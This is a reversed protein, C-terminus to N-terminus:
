MRLRAKLSDVAANKPPTLQAADVFRAVILPGTDFGNCHRAPM